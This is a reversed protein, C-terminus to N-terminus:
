YIVFPREESFFQDGGPCSLERGFTGEGGGDEHGRRASNIFEEKAQHDLSPDLVGGGQDSIVM